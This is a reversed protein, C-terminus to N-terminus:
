QDGGSQTHDHRRTDGGSEAPLGGGTTLPARHDGGGNSGASQPDDDCRSNPTMTAAPTPPERPGATGLGDVGSSVQPAENRPPGGAGSRV